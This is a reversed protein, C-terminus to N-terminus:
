KIAKTTVEQSQQLSQACKRFEKNKTEPCIMEKGSIPVMVLGSTKSVARVVGLESEATSLFYRRQDGFSIIRAMVLDHPLFCDHIQLEEIGGPRINEKRIIGAFHEPLNGVTEGAIIDVTAGQLSIRTVKGVVIQGISLIPDRIRQPIVNAIINKHNGEKKSQSGTVAVSNSQSVVDLTGVIHACVYGGRLYTGVGAQLDNVKGLRDGPVVVSGPEFNLISQSM